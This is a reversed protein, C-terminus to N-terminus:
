KETNQLTYVIEKVHQAWESHTKTKDLSQWSIPKGFTIHFEQNSNKFMEDPLYFLEVNLKIGISKRFNSLNYFFKSNTGDFYIPIIDREHEIAKAIFNKMWELDKIKGNQKRSCLGAPFTIIQNDSKYAENIAKVSDKAQTGYKNIPVFISRLHPVYTLVDNVLYRIKGDYKEGLYTSLCIGDLGGLPHNSAFIFRGNEPINEEGHIHLKIKFEKDVLARMFEVGEIYNNREIIANIDEQHITKKIYNVVFKPIKTHLKPAKDKLVSDIDIKFALEKDMQIRIHSKTAFICFIPSYFM